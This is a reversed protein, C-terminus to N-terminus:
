QPMTVASAKRLDIVMTESIKDQIAQRNPDWYIQVFGLLGTAFGAGYGGYRGFSDWLSLEHGDVRIVRIGLVLKGLTQGNLWALFTSFYLAAWGFSIGLDAIAGQLWQV